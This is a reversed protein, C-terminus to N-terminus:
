VPCSRATSFVVELQRTPIELKPCKRRSKSTPGQSTCTAFELRVCTCPQPFLHFRTLSHSLFASLSISGRWAVTIFQESPLRPLPQSFHMATRSGVIQISHFKFDENSIHVGGPNPESGGERQHSSKVQTEQARQGTEKGFMNRTIKQKIQLTNYSREQHWQFRSMQKKQKLLKLRKVENM